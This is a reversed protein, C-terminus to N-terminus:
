CDQEAGTERHYRFGRDHALTTITDLVESKCFYCRDRGNARYGPRGLEGTLPTLHTVGVDDALCNVM